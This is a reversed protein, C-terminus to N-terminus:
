LSSPIHWIVHIVTVLGPYLDWMFECLVSWVQPGNWSSIIGISFQILHFEMAPYWLVVCNQVHLFLVATQNHWTCFKVAIVESCSPHSCFSIKLLNSNGYFITRSIPGQGELALWSIDKTFIKSLLLIMKCLPDVTYSSIVVLLIFM